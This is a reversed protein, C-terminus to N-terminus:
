EVRFNFDKYPDNRKRNPAGGKASEAKTPKLDALPGRKAKRKAAQTKRGDNKM